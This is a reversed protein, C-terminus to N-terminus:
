QDPNGLFVSGLPHVCMHVCVGKEIKRKEVISSDQPIVQCKSM